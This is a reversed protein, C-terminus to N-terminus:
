RTATYSCAGLSGTCTGTIRDGSVSGQCSGLVGVFTVSSQTVTGTYSAAGDNCAFNVSCGSQTIVCDDVGCSGTAVWTGSLDACSGVNSSGGAGPAGGTGGGSGLLCENLRDCPSQNICDAVEKARGTCNDGNVSCTTNGCSEMKDCARHCATAGLSTGDGGGDGGGCGALAALGLVLASGILKKM